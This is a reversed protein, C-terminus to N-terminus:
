LNGLASQIQKLAQSDDEIYSFLKAKLLDCRACFKRIYKKNIQEPKALASNSKEVSTVRLKTENMLALIQEKKEQFYLKRSVPPREHDEQGYSELLVCTKEYLCKAINFSCNKGASEAEAQKFLRLAEDLCDLASPNGNKFTM